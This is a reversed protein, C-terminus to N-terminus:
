RNEEDLRCLTNYAEACLRSLMWSAWFIAVVKVGKVAPSDTVLDITMTAWTLFGLFWLWRVTWRTRDRFSM